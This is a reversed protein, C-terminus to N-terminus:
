SVVSRQLFTQGSSDRDLYPYLAIGGKWYRTIRHSFLTQLHGIRMRRLMFLGPRCLSLSWSSPCKQCLHKNAVAFLVMTCVFVHLSNWTKFMERRIKNLVCVLKTVTCTCCLQGYCSEGWNVVEWFKCHLGFRTHTGHKCLVRRRKIIMMMMSNSPYM